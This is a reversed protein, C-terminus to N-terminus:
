GKNLATWVYLSVGRKYTSWYGHKESVELAKDLYYEAKEYDKRYKYASSLNIYQIALGSYNEKKLSLNAARKYYVECSDYNGMLEYSDGINTILLSADFKVKDKNNEVYKLAKKFYKASNIYDGKNRYASAKQNNLEVIYHDLGHEKVLKEMKDFYKTLLDKMEMSHALHLSLNLYNTFQSHYDNNKIAKELMDNYLKVAKEYFSKKSYYNALWKGSMSYLRYHGISDALTNAKILNSFLKSVNGNKSYYESM